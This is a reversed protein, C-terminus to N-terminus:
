WAATPRAFVVAACSVEDLITAVIGGHAIGPAGHFRDAIRTARTSRARGAPSLAAAARRPNSPSCGFCGGDEPLQARRRGAGARHAFAIGRLRRVLCGGRLGLDAPRLGVLSDLVVDAAAVRDRGLAPDPVAIVQMGAARAADVGAPADEVAVCRAPTSGSSARPSCTSTRRRSAARSARTTAPSSSTSAPSGTAITRADEARLAPRASSTAVAVPVGRPACRPRHARARGPMAEATPMLTEFLVERERLYDEPTIPLDLADVLYRASDRAPRGIMNGKVSWDFTKGFRGVIQQTAETYLRETDLLVGDMDFVVAVVPRPLLM